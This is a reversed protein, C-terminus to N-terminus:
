LKFQKGTQDLINENQLFSLLTFHNKPKIWGMKYLFYRDLYVKM